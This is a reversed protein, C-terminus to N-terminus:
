LKLNVTMPHFSHLTKLNLFDLMSLQEEINTITPEYQSVSLWPYATQKVGKKLIDNTKCALETCVCSVCLSFILLSLLLLHSYCVQQWKSGSEAVKQWKSGSALWKCAQYGFTALMILCRVLQDYYTVLM